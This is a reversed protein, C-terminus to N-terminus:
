HDNALVPNIEVTGLFGDVGDLDRAIRRHILWPM